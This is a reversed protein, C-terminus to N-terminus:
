KKITETIRILAGITAGIAIVTAFIWKVVKGFGKAQVLLEHLDDVKSKLGMDGTEPNGFMAYSLTKVSEKLMDHEKQYDHDTM